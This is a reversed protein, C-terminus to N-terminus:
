DTSLKLTGPGIANLQQSVLSATLFNRREWKGTGNWKEGLCHFFFGHGVLTPNNNKSSDVEPGPIIWHCISLRDRKPRVDMASSAKKIFGISHKNTESNPTSFSVFFFVFCFLLAPTLPHSTAPVPFRFWRPASSPTATPAANRFFGIREMSPHNWRQFGSGITSLLGASLRAYRCSARHQQQTTTKKESWGELTRPRKGQSTQSKKTQTHTWPTYNELRGVVVFPSFFVLWSRCFFFSFSVCVCM